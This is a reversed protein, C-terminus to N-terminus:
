IVAKKELIVPYEQVGILKKGKTIHVEKDLIVNELMVNEDIVCKEMIISNKIHAGKHIQVGRFLISNEVKGEIVCGNAVLANKVESHEMYKVPAQDKVKTYILGPNSFLQKWIIPNLLDMNHKYYSQISNIRAVYSSYLYGYINLKDVNKIIADKIFDYDGRSTCEDIIDILLEREIIYMEMSLNDTKANVPSFEMRTVRSEDSIEMVTCQSYDTTTPCQHYIITIDANMDEHFKLADTYDINCIINAGSIIVYKQRSRSIYSLNNYLNELDGKRVSTFYDPSPPLIFLGDRKRDLDWEKGSRLHDMLSAYKNQVLIGVNRIGSNVMNSLAFDVIRYRGGIPVSAVSRKHTIEKLYTDNKTNNIIGLVDRM